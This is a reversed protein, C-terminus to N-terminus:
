MNATEKAAPKKGIAYAWDEKHITTLYRAERCAEDWIVCYVEKSLARLRKRFVWRGLGLYRRMLDLAESDIDEVSRM